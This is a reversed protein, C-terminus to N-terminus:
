AAHRNNLEHFTHLDSFRNLPTVMALAACICAYTGVPGVQLKAMAGLPGHGCEVAEPVDHRVPVLQGDGLLQGFELGPHSGSAHGSDSNGAGLHLQIGLAGAGALAAASPPGHAHVGPGSPGAVGIPVQPGGLQLDSLVDPIVLTKFSPGAAANVLPGSDDGQSAQRSTARHSQGPGNTHQPNSISSGPNSSTRIPKLGVKTTLLSATASSSTSATAHGAGHAMPWACRDLPGHPAALTGPLQGAAAIPM